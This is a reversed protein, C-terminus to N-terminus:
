SKRDGATVKNYHERLKAKSGIWTQGERGAPILSTGLVYYTRRRSQGIFGAIASAGMLLDTGLQSPGADTYDM